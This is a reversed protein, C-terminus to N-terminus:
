SMCDDNNENIRVVNIYFKGDFVVVFFGKWYDVMGVNRFRKLNKVIILNFIFGVDWDNVFSYFVVVLLREKIVNVVVRYVISWYIGNSVIKM